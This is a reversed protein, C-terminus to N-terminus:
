QQDPDTGDAMPVLGELITVSGTGDSTTIMVATDHDVDTPDQPIDGSEQEFVTVGFTLAPYGRKVHGEAPGGRARSTAPVEAIMRGESSGDYAIDVLNLATGISEGAAYGTPTYTPHRHRRLASALSAHVNPLLGVRSRLGTPAVHEEYVYLGRLPREFVQYVTTSHDRSLRAVGPWWLYLAPFLNRVFHTDPNWPYTAGVAIAGASMGPLNALKADLDARLCHALFALLGKVTPDALEGGSAGAPVPLTIGGLTSTAM